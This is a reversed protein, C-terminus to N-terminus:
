VFAALTIGLYAQRLQRQEKAVIALAKTFVVTWSVRQRASRRLRAVSGLEIRRDVPFLPVRKAIACVDLVLRRNETLQVWRGKKM